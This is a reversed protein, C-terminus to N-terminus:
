KVVYTLPPSWDAAGGKIVARYRFEVTTLATLGGLTTRAQLTQPIEIWTKGGDTSYQWEYSARRAASPVVLKV